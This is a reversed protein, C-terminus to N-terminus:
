RLGRPHTQIYKQLTAKHLDVERQLAGLKAMDQGVTYRIDELKHDLKVDSLKQYRLDWVAGV